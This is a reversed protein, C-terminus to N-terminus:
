RVAIMEFPYTVTMYGGDSPGEFTLALISETVCALLRPDRVTSADVDPDVSEVVGGLERNGLLTMVLVLKGGLTRDRANAEDYCARVLPMIHHQLVGRVYPDRPPTFPRGRPPADYIAKLADLVRDRQSRDVSHDVTARAGHLVVPQQPPSSPAPSERDRLALWVAVGVVVVAIAIATRM